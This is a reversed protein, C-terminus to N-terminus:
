EINGKSWNYNSTDALSIVVQYTGVNVGGNNVITYLDSEEIIPKQLESNYIFSKETLTPIDVRAKEIVFTIETKLGYYNETEAVSFIAKYEGANTPMVNYQNNEGDVFFVEVNGFKATGISIAGQEEGYVWTTKNLNPNLTFSNTAKVIEYTLTIDESNGNVWKYNLNDVLSVVVEYTGVNVGGENVIKYLDNVAVTPKQTKGTYTFTSASLTPASIGLKGVNFKVEVVRSAYNITNYPTFVANFTNEGVNGVKTTLTNQWTWEGYSSTPLVNVFKELTDLYIANITSVVEDQNQVQLVQINVEKTAGLYHETEELTITVVYNGSDKLANTPEGNYLYSYKITQENNNVSASFDYQYTSNFTYEGNEAVNVIIEGQAKNVKLKLEAKEVNFNNTDEPTYVVQYNNEGILLLQEANAWTYGNPLTIDKLIRASQENYTIEELNSQVFTFEAKNAKNIILKTKLDEAFYKESKLVLNIDYSGANTKAINDEVNFDNDLVGEVVYSVLKEEGDYTFENNILKIEVPKKAVNFTIEKEISNYNKTDFPTFLVKTTFTNATLIQVNETAFAWSGIENNTSVLDEKTLITGYVAKEELISVDVGHTAKNVVLKGKEIETLNFNSYTKNVLDIEHEGAQPFIPANTSLNLQGKLSDELINGDANYVNVTFTPVTTGYVMEETSIEVKIPKKTIEFEGFYEGEYNDDEITLMYNYTGVDKATEYGILEYKVNVTENDVGTFSYIPKKETGDYEFSSQEINFQLSTKNKIFNANLTVNNTIEGDIEEWGVFTFGTKTPIKTLDLEDATLVYQSEYIEGDVLFDVKYKVFYTFTISKNNYSLEISKEGVSSTDIEETFMYNEFDILYEEGDEKTIKLYTNEFYEEFNFEEQYYFLMETKDTEISYKDTDAQCAFLGGFALTLMGVLLITLFKRLSRTIKM